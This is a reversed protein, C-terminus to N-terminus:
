YRPTLAATGPGPVTALRDGYGLKPRSTNTSSPALPFYLESPDFNVLRNEWPSVARTAYVHDFDISSVLPTRVSSLSERKECFPLQRRQSRPRDANSLRFRRTIDPSYSRGAPVPLFSLMRLLNTFARSPSQCSPEMTVQRDPNGIFGVSPTFRALVLMPTSRGFAVPTLWDRALGVVASHNLVAANASCGSKLKPLTPRFETM